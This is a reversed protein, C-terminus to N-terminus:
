LAEGVVRKMLRGAPLTEGPKVENILALIELSVSSPFKAAFQELTMASPLEVIEIRQPQVNLIRPDTVDDFSSITEMVTREHSLWRNAPAYGLIQYVRGRHEIFVAAGRLVGQQTRAEFELSVAPLGRINGRRLSGTRLGQQSAFARAAADASAGQALAMGVM